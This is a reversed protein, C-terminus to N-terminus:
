GRRRSRGALGLLLLTGPALLLATRSADPVGSGGSSAFTFDITGSWTGDTGYDTPDSSVFGHGLWISYPSSTLNIPASLNYTAAVTNEEGQTYNAYWFDREPLFPGSITEFGTTGGIQLLLNPSAGNSNDGDPAGGTTSAVLVTLDSAWTENVFGGATPTGNENSSLSANISVGTLTGGLSVSSVASLNVFSGGYLFLSSFSFRVTRPFSSQLSFASTAVYGDSGGNSNLAVGQASTNTAPPPPNGWASGAAVLGAV